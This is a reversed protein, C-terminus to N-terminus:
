CCGANPMIWYKPKTVDSINFMEVNEWEEDTPEFESIDAILEKAAEISEAIIVAGGDSHYNGSCEAVNEFIFIKM